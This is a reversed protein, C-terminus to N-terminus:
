RRPTRNAPPMVPDQTELAKETSTVNALIRRLTKEFRDVDASSLEAYFHANMEASVAAYRDQWEHHKETLHVFVSRRDDPAPSRTVWGYDELRDLMRTLTSKKLATRKALTQIPIGDGQWLAFIIRGQAPNFEEIGHLKLLRAFVRGSIQHIKAILFGGEREIQM